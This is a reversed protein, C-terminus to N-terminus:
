DHAASLLDRHCARCATSVPRHRLLEIRTIAPPQEEHFPSPRYRANTHDRTAPGRTPGSSTLIPTRPSVEPSGQPQPSPHGRPKGLAKVNNFTCTHSAAAGSGVEAERINPPHPRSRRLRAARLAAICTLSGLRQDDSAYLPRVGLRQM